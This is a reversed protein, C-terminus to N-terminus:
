NRLIVFALMLLLIWGGVSMWRRNSGGIFVLVVPATFVAAYLAIYSVRSSQEGGLSPGVVALLIIALLVALVRSTRLLLSKM